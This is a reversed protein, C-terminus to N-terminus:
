TLLYRYIPPYPIGVTPRDCPYLTQAEPPESPITVGDMANRAFCVGAGVGDWGLAITEREYTNDTVRVDYAPAGLGTVLVGWVNDAFRNREIVDFWGGNVWVAAETVVHDLRESMPPGPTGSARTGSFSNGIVHVGRSPAEARTGGATAWTSKIAIGADNFGFASGRVVLSGANWAHLGTGNNAFASDSVTTDCTVCSQISIGAWPNREVRVSTISGGASAEARVGYRGNLRAIVRDIAYGDVGALAIGTDEYGQLMLNEIRVGDALVAIGVDRDAPDPQGNGDDGDLLVEFPELGTGRLTVDPTTVALSEPYRGPAIQVITTPAIGELAAAITPFADSPVARVPPEPPPPPPPSGEGVVIVGFMSGPHVKCRYTVTEDETFTYQVADGQNLLSAQDFRPPDRDDTVTHGGDVATWTVTEGVDIELVQPDYYNNRVQVEHTGLHARAPAGAAVVTLAAAVLARAKM